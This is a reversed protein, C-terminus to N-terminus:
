LRTDFTPTWRVELNWLHQQSDVDVAMFRIPQGKLYSLLNVSCLSTPLRYNAVDVVHQRVHFTYVHSPDFFTAQMLHPM